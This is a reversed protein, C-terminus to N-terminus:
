QPVIAWNEPWFWILAMGGLLAAVFFPALRAGFRWGGLVTAAVGKFVFNSLSASLILKWANVPDLHKSEVLRSVSLTTADMDTLGSVIAVLYLASADLYHQVAAVALTVLAYLVGFVLASELEAPNAPSPMAQGEGRFLLFATAAIASAWVSAALLPPLLVGVNSPAVVSVELMLRFYSVASAILIVAVALTHAASSERARRAYSITTATSSILGGLIGGLLTGADQGILKYVIYGGLSLGVILVVMRWIDFPNLVGFPGFTRNPLLPLIILSIVVLQMIGAMDKPGMKSVFHHMPAKLHLLIVVLGAAVAAIARDGTPLYAGIAFTLLAAVETTQGHEQERDRSAIWSDIALTGFIAIIGAVIPWPGYATGLMGCFAGFLCILPFTRIGGYPTAVRERQLGILLGLGLAIGLTIFSDM